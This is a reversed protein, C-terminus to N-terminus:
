EQEDSSINRSQYLRKLYFDAVSVSSRYVKRLNELADASKEGVYPAEKWRFGQGKYVVGDKGAYVNSGIAYSEVPSLLNEGFAIFPADSLTMHYLTPFIDEHSGFKESDYSKPRLSEPAYIYFPVQYKIFREDGGYSMFGWFNHDGTFSVVASDKLPGNKVETLFKSLVTNSYQFAKFREIFLDEERTIREKLAPPIELAGPAKFGPPVEFPPHNTTSLALIFQPTKADKLKKMVHNFLHEDYLGWETGQVGTLKLNERIANEGEVHHYGQRKFYKGVGRWGLKGGYVFSTEYGNALYPRHASSTLPLQMYRSESLFRAGPRPPLNSAVAMLSGITGNDSSIFNRFYLDSEIHDKLPGLFNFTESNYRNWSGGFSEMVFVVVHPQTKELAENLPTRRELLSPLQIKDTPSTDLGLFDSFAEHIGNEYGMEKEMSFGAASRRARMKFAKEFTVMGNLAVQNVFLNTSFDAYKPSLVFQGYGGRAGGFLLTLSLASMFLFKFPGPHFFSRASEWSRFVSRVTYAIVALLLGVACLIPVVPYNKWFTVMLAQTDDELLGFFLINLHDQFFSYFGIDSGIFFVVAFVALFYFVSALRYFLATIKPSKTMAAPIAFLVFPALLYSAVITDYRWGTLFAMPLDQGAQEFLGPPAFYFLFAVRGASMLFLLLGYLVFAKKLSIFLFDCRNLDPRM